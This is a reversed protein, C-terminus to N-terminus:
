IGYFKRILAFFWSEPFFRRPPLLMEAAFAMPYSLKTLGETCAAFITSAVVQPDAEKNGASMSFKDCQAILNDIGSSTGTILVTENM